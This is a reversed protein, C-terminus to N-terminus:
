EQGRGQLLIEQAKPSLVVGNGLTRFVGCAATAEVQPDNTVLCLQSRYQVAAKPSFTIRLPRVSHPPVVLQRSSPTFIFRDVSGAEQGLDVWKVFLPGDGDNHIAMVHESTRGVRTSRFGIGEPEIRLKPAAGEVSAAIPIIITRFASDNEGEIILEGEYSGSWDPQFMVTVEADGESPIEFHRPNVDFGLTHAIYATVKLPIDSKVNSVPIRVVEEITDGIHANEIQIRPESFDVLLNAINRGNGKIPIQLPYHNRDDTLLTIKGSTVRTTKPLFDINIGVENGPALSQIQQFHDSMEFIGETEGDLLIDFVRLPRDGTNRLIISRHQNAKTGFADGESFNEGFALMELVPFQALSPDLSNALEFRDSIDDNDSDPNRPDTGYNYESSATLGDDDDDGQNPDNPIEPLRFSQTSCLATEIQETGYLPCVRFDYNKETMLGYYKARYPITLASTNYPKFTDFPLWTDRDDKSVELQFGSLSPDLLPNIHILAGHHLPLPLTSIAQIRQIRVAEFAFLTHSPLFLFINIFGFFLLLQKTMKMGKQLSFSHLLCVPILSFLLKLVEQKHTNSFLTKSIQKINLTRFLHHTRLHAFSFASPDDYGKRLSFSDVKNTHKFSAEQM